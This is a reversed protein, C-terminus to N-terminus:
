YPWRRDLVSVPTEQGGLKCIASFIGPMRAILFM